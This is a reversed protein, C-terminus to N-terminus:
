EGKGRFVLAQGLYYMWRPGNASTGINEIWHRIGALERRPFRSDIVIDEIPVGESELQKALDYAKQFARFLAPIDKAKGKLFVLEEEDLGLSQKLFGAMREDEEELGRRTQEIREPLFELRGKVWGALQDQTLNFPYKEFPNFNKRETESM